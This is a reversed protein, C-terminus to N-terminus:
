EDDDPDDPECHDLWEGQDIDMLYWGWKEALAVLRAL